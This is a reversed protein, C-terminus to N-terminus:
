TPHITPFMLIFLSLVMLLRFCFNIIKVILYISVQHQVSSSFIVVTLANVFDSLKSIKAPWGHINGEKSNGLSAIFKHIDGDNLFSDESPYVIDVAKQVYKNLINWLRYGDKRYYFDRVGDSEDEPFGKKAM